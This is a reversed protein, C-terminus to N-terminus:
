GGNTEVARWWADLAAGGGVSIDAVVAYHVHEGANKLALYTGVMLVDYGMRGDHVFAVVVHGTKMEQVQRVGADVAERATRFQPATLDKWDQQLNPMPKVEM